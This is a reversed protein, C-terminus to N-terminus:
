YVKGVVFCRTGTISSQIAPIWMKNSPIVMILDYATAGGVILMVLNNLVVPRLSTISAASAKRAVWSLGDICTFGSSTSSLWFFNGCWVLTSPSTVPTPIWTWTIGLDTSVWLLQQHYLVLVSGSVAGVTVSKDFGTRVTWSTGDASYSLVGTSSNILFGGGPIASVWNYTASTIVQPSWNIGDTSTYSTGSGNTIILFTTGDFLLHNVTIAGPLVRPTWTVGDTSTAYDASATSRTAVFVGAGFVVRKWIAAAAPMATAHLTWIVGDTSTYMDQTSSNKFGVFVGAGAAVGGDITFPATIQLTYLASNGVPTVASLEPWASRDVLQGIADILHTPYPNDGYFLTLVEGLTVGVPIPEFSSGGAGDATLVEGDAAGTSVVNGAPIIADDWNVIRVPDSPGPEDCGVLRVPTSPSTM